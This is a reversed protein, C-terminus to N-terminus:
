EEDRKGYRETVDQIIDIAVREPVRKGAPSMRENLTRVAEVIQANYEPSGVPHHRTHQRHRGRLNLLIFIVILVIAFLGLLYLDM